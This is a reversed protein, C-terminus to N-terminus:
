ARILKLLEDVNVPKSLVHSAGQRMAWINDTEQDNSTCIVVRVGQYQPDRTIARTMQYGNQGPLVAETLVLDPKEESMRQMAADANEATRVRFGHKMLFEALQQAAMSTDVVLISQIPMALMEKDTSRADHRCNAGASYEM